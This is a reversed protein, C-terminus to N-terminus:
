AWLQQTINWGDIDLVPIINNLGVTAELPTSSNLSFRFHDLACGTSRLHALLEVIIDGQIDPLATHFQDMQLSLGLRLSTWTTSTFSLPVKVVVAVAFTVAPIRWDPKM